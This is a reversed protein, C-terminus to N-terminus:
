MLSYMCTYPSSAPTTRSRGSRRHTLRTTPTCGCSCCRGAYTLMRGDAYTRSPSSCRQTLPTDDPHLGLHMMKWVDSAIGIHKLNISGSFIPRITQINPRDRTGRQQRSSVACTPTDMGFVAAKRPRTLPDRCDCLPSCYPFSSVSALLHYRHAQPM